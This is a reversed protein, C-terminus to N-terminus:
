LLLSACACLVITTASYLGLELGITWLYHMCEAGIEYIQKTATPRKRHCLSTVSPASHKTVTRQVPSACPLCAPPEIAACSAQACFPTSRWSFARLNYKQPQGISDCLDLFGKCLFLMKQSCAVMSLGPWLYCQPQLITFPPRLLPTHHIHYICTTSGVKSELWKWLDEESPRERLGIYM